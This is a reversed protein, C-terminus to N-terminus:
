YFEHLLLIIMLRCVNINFSLIQVLLVFMSSPTVVASLMANLDIVNGVQLM